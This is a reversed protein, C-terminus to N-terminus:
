DLRQRGKFGTHLEHYYAVRPEGYRWCLYIERGDRKSLFDILGNNLDKIICGHARIKRALREIAMFDLVMESAASGGVDSHGAELLAAIDQRSNVIKKRRDILREMLPEIEEIAQNAEEVTFYRTEM